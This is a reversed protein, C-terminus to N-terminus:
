IEIEVAEAVVRGESSISVNVEVEQGIQLAGCTAAEGTEEYSITAGTIDISIEGGGYKHSLLMTDPINDDGCGSVGTITGELKDVKMDPWRNEEMFAPMTYTHIEPRLIYRGNGTYILHISEAPLLDLVIYETTDPGLYIPPDFIIDIKDPPVEVELLKAEGDACPNLWDDAAGDIYLCNKGEAPDIEVRAEVYNGAPVTTVSLLTAYNDQLSLLEHPRTGEFVTFWEEDEMKLSVKNVTVWIQSINEVTSQDESSPPRPVDSPSDKLLIGVKGLNNGLETSDIGGLGEEPNDDKSSSPGGSGCATLSLALIIGTLISLGSKFSM